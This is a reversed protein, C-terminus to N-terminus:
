QEGKLIEKKLIVNLAEAKYYQNSWTDAPSVLIDVRDGPNIMSDVKEMDYQNGYFRVIAPFLIGGHKTNGGPGTVAIYYYTLNRGEYLVDGFVDFLKYTTTVARPRIPDPLVDAHKVACGTSMAGALALAGLGKALKKMKPWM